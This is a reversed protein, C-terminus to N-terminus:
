VQMYINLFTNLVNYDFIAIKDQTVRNTQQKQIICIM